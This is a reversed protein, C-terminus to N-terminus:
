RSARPDQVCWSRYAKFGCNHDHLELKSVQRVILNFLRSALRKELSDHRVKKWGSVVDFGGNIKAVFAPLEGPDDQLDADMTVVIDGAAEHFGAMLAASKGFNTRLLVGKVNPMELALRSVVETTGDTSGDDVLIIEWAGFSRGEVVSFIEDM